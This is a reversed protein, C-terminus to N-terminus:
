KVDPPSTEARPMLRTPPERHEHTTCHTLSNLEILVQQIDRLARLWDVAATPPATHAYCGREYDRLALLAEVTGNHREWCAPIVRPEITFRAILQDVWPRLGALAREREDGLLSHLHVPGTAHALPGATVEPTMPEAMTM